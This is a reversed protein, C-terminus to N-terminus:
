CNSYKDGEILKGWIDCFKYGGNFGFEESAFKNLKECAPNRYKISYSDM